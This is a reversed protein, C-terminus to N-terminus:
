LQEKHASQLNDDAGTESKCDRQRHGEQGYGVCRDHELPGYMLREYYNGRGGRSPSLDRGRM